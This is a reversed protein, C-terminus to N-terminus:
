KARSMNNMNLAIFNNYQIFPNRACQHISPHSHFNETQHSVKLWSYKYHQKEKTKLLYSHSSLGKICLTGFISRWLFQLGLNSAVSHPMQDPDLSNAMIYALKLFFGWFM